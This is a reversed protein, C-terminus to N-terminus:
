KCFIRTEQYFSGYTKTTSVTRETGNCTATVRVTYTGPPFSGCFETDNIDVDCSVGTGLVEFFVEDDTNDNHVWLETPPNKLIIPLYIPGTDSSSGGVDTTVVKQGVAPVAGEAGVRYDANTITQSATVVFTTQTVAGNGPLSTTWSVVNGVQTGGTIYTAGAPIADTIVLNTAPALGGNTVTLTYTILSGAPATSPGDKTITLIPRAVVLSHINSTASVVIPTPPPTTGTVTARNVLTYPDTPLVTYNATYTWPENVDLKGNGQDGTVYTAPGAITDTVSINEFSERNSTPDPSVTFTYTVVDGVSATLPGTKVIRLTPSSTVISIVPPSTTPTPVETSTVSVTNSIVTGNKLFSDVTVAFTVTVLSQPTVTIGTAITPPTGPTGGASSPLITVSGAVFSTKDPLTDSVVVGTATIHGSNSITITYTIRESPRLPDGGENQATKTVSLVV